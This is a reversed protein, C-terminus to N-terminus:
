SETSNDQALEALMPATLTIQTGQDFCPAVRIKGGLRELRESFDQHGALNGAASTAQNLSLELGPIEVRICLLDDVAFLELRAEPTRAYALINTLITKIARYFTLKVARNLPVPGGIANTFDFRTNNKENIEEILFDIAVDIDFDDLIPPALEYMLARIEKVGHELFTKAEILEQQGPGPCSEILSKIKSVGLGLTQAVTGHLESAISKRESEEFYILYENLQKLQLTQRALDDLYAKEQKQFQGLQRAMLDLARALDGLEDSRDLKSRYHYKQAAIKQTMRTLKRIPRVFTEVVIYICAGALLLALGAYALFNKSVLALNKGLAFRTENVSALMQRENIVEILLHKNDTLPAATILYPDKGLNLRVSQDRGKLILGAAEQIRPMYSEAPNYLSSPLGIHDRYEPPFATLKGKPGLIFSFRDKSSDENLAKSVAALPVDIGAIGRFKGKEGIIPAAVTFIFEKQVPDEYPLIIRPRYEPEATFLAMAPSNRLDFIDARPLELYKMREPCERTYYKGIGSLTIIHTAISEQTLSKAEALFRDMPRLANIEQKTDPSFDPGGWYATLCPAASFTYFINNGPNLVMPALIKKRPANADANKYIEGARMALFKACTKYRLLQQNFRGVKERTLAMLYTESTKKIQRTNATDAFNGFDKLAQNAMLFLPIIVIFAAVVSFVFLKGAISLKIGM